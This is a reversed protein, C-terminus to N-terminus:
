RHLTGYRWALQTFRYQLNGVIDMYELLLDRDEPSLRSLLASFAEDLEARKHSLEQYESDMDALRQVQESARWVWELMM